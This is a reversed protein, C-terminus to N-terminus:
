TKEKSSCQEETCGEVCMGNMHAIDKHHGCACLETDTQRSPEEAIIVQPPFFEVDIGAGKFKIVGLRKLATLDAVLEARNASQRAAHAAAQQQHEEDTVVGGVM